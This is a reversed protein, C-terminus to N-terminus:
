KTAVLRLIQDMGEKTLHLKTEIIEAVKAWDEFDQGKVGLIPYKYFFPLIIKSNNKFSQCRFEIHDKYSFTQGCGFFDILSKLLLEDRIHQTVIFVLVVRSGAKCLKSERVSVKFCGDGSTFGAVWQPHLKTNAIALSPRVVAINNPFAERLLPSLGKNISARINIIKQLGEITLHEGRQMMMVVQKFLLYDAYKNTKLPYKDFHPIVKTIIQDLSGITFDRCNNREKGIRGVGGFYAQILRLLEIDRVHLNISFNVEIQWNHEPTCSYEKRTRGKNIGNKIEKIKDLGEKTLHAKNEILEATKVFDIYDLHKVGQIQYKNFFPIIINLIDSFKEVRYVFSERSKYVNGSIRRRLILLSGKPRACGPRPSLNFYNIFSRMLQEDRVHQTLQFVLKVAEGTKTGAKYTKILFCGEASTFGALWNPDYETTNQVVPREVPVINPYNTKLEESLGNNMSAKIALIKALGQITLHEKNQVLAFAQKLLEFDARKKSLLAYKDFHQIIIQLDQVSSVYYRCNTSSNYLKGAKFFKQIQELLTQDKIHLNIQYFLKVRWGTKYTNDKYVDIWFCGAEGGDTFGTVFWPNMVNKTILNYNTLISFSKQQTGVPLKNKPSKRVLVLFCGEADTFGSIFWPEKLQPLKNTDKNLGSEISFFRKQIIQDSPFKVPYNREFGTLTCRLYPFNIGYKSGNVRQEKVAINDLIASKSGRDGMNKKSAKLSTVMCSYNIWGCIGKWTYSPVQLELAKGSNLLISGVTSSKGPGREPSWFHFPAASVKFLFGISFILLSFNIYYSKYWSSGGISDSISTIVYLGDMNTTGSNAYLLSTGLLIFCSSLGM